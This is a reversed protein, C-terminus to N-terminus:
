RPSIAVPGTSGSTAILTLKISAPVVRLEATRAVLSMVPQVEVDIENEGKTLAPADIEVDCSVPQVHIGEPITDPGSLYLVARRGVTLKIYTGTGTAIVPISLLATKAGAPDIPGTKLQILQTAGMLKERDTEPPGPKGPLGKGLTTKVRIPWPIDVLADLEPSKGTWGARTAMRRLLDLRQVKDLLSLKRVTEVGASAVLDRVTDSAELPAEAKLAELSKVATRVLGEPTGSQAAATGQGTLLSVAEIRSLREELQELYTSMSPVKQLFSLPQKHDSSVVQLVMDEGAAVPVSEAIYGKGKAKLPMEQRSQEKGAPWYALLPASDPVAPVTVALTDAGPSVVVLPVGLVETSVRGGEKVLLDISQVHKLEPPPLSLTFRGKETAMSKEAGEPNLRVFAAGASQLDWTLTLGDVRHQTVLTGFMRPLAGDSTRAPWFAHIGFGAAGIVALVVLVGSIAGIILSHPVSV